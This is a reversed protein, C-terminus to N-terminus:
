GRRSASIGLLECMANCQHTKFFAEMGGKGRDTRGYNKAKSRRSHICPDTFEFVPSPGSHSLVGQLDCVMLTRKTIMHSWHTFAQPVDDDLVRSEIENVQRVSTVNEEEVVEEEDEDEDEEEELLLLPGLNRQFYSPSLTIPLPGTLMEAIERASNDKSYAGTVQGTNDNWKKWRDTGNCHMELDIETMYARKVTHYEWGTGGRKEKFEFDCVYISCDLFNIRPIMVNVNKQDLRANFKKAMSLAKMQTKIFTEHFEQPDKKEKLVWVSEKAVLRKGVPKLHKDIETMHFVHREAGEGFYKKEVAFAKANPHQYIPDVSKMKGKYTGDELQVFEYKERKKLRLIHWDDLSIRGTIDAVMDTDARKSVPSRIRHRDDGIAFTLQSLKTTLSTTSTAMTSLATNLATSDGTCFKSTLMGSEKAVSM